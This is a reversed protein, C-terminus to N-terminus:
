KGKEKLIVTYECGCRSCFVSNDIPYGCPCIQKIKINDKANKLKEIIKDYNLFAFFNHSAHNLEEIINEIEQQTLKVEKEETLYNNSIITM